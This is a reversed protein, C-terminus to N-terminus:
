FSVPLAVPVYMHYKMHNPTLIIDSLFVVMMVCKTGGTRLM